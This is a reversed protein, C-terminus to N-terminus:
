LKHPLLLQLAEEKTKVWHIRKDRKFWTIQRKAYRWTEIEIKNCLYKAAMRGLMSPRGTELYDLALRYEFGLERIRRKPIHLALLRKTEKLIAPVLKKTRKEIARRLEAPDKKIGIMLVRNDNHYVITNQFLVKSNSPVPKGSAKIIELARMLRRPNKADIQKARRPDRKKLMAFLEEKSKKALEKRLKINPPMEPLVLNDVVAQIYFGTGGVLIPVNGRATIETIAKDACKKYEAVTFTKRPHVFDICHHPINKYIFCYTLKAAIAALSVNSWTGPVKNTGIDLYKYVQRSDASIIEAGRYGGLKHRKIERALFIALDSKGSATPGVIAILKQM